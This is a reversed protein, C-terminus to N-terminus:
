GAPPGNARQRVEEAGEKASEKLEEAHQQGGQKATEMAEQGVERAGEAAQEAVQGAVEKGRDLAEKGTEAATEKVQDAVPGVREDELRSSPLLMGVLFGTALGGLALGVPNEEAVGVARGAGDKIQDTDPTAEGAKATTGQMQRRLRDRKEAFSGKVRTKVDAKYALANVTDGMEARTQDIEERIQSPGQGM